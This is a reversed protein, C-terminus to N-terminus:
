STERRSTLLNQEAGNSKADRSRGSSALSHGTGLNLDAPYCMRNQLSKSKSVPPTRNKKTPEQHFYRPKSFMSSFWQVGLKWLVEIKLVSTQMFVRIAAHRYQMRGEFKASPGFRVPRRGSHGEQPQQGLQLGLGHQDGPFREGRFPM